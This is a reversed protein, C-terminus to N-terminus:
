SMKEPVRREKNDARECKEPYPTVEDWLTKALISVVASIRDPLDCGTRNQIGTVLSTIGTVCVYEFLLLVALMGVYVALSAMSRKGLMSVIRRDRWGFEIRCHQADATMRRARCLWRAEWLYFCGVM